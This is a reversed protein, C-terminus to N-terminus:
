GGVGAGDKAFIRPLASWQTRGTRSAAAKGAPRIWKTYFHIRFHSRVNEPDPFDTQRGLVILDGGKGAGSYKSALGHASFYGVLRRAGLYAPDGRKNEVDYPTFDKLYGQELSRYAEMASMVDMFDGRLANEWFKDVMSQMKPQSEDWRAILNNTKLVEATGRQSRTYIDMLDLERLWNAGAIGLTKVEIQTIASETPALRGVKQPYGRADVLNRVSERKGEARFLIPTGNDTGTLSAFPGTASSSDGQMLSEFRHAHNLVRMASDSPQGQRLTSLDWNSLQHNTPSNALEVLLALASSLAGSSGLGCGMPIQSRIVLEYGAWDPRSSDPPRRRLYHSFEDFVSRLKHHRFPNKKPSSGDLCNPWVHGSDVLEDFDADPGVTWFDLVEKFQSQITDGKARVLRLAATLYLPIPLVVSPCGFVAAHDGVLITSAPVSVTFDYSLLGEGGNDQPPWPARPCVSHTRFHGRRAARSAAQPKGEEGLIADLLTSDAPARKGSQSGGVIDPGAM